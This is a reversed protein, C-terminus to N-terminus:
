RRWQSSERWYVLPGRARTGDLCGECPCGVEHVRCTGRVLDRYVKAAAKGYCTRVRASGTDDLASVM